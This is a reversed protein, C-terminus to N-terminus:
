DRAWRNSVIPIHTAQTNRRLRPPHTILHALKDFWALIDDPIPDHANMWMTLQQPTAAILAALKTKPLPITPVCERLHAAREVDDRMRAVHTSRRM